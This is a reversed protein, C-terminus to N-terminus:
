QECVPPLLAGHRELLTVLFRAANTPRPPQWERGAKPNWWGQVTKPARWLELHEVPPDACFSDEGAGLLASSWHTFRDHSLRYIPFNGYLPVGWGDLAILAAVSGGMAQWWTAAGIAGAAGASFGILIVERGSSHASGGGREGPLRPCRGTGLRDSIFQLIHAASYAPCSEAPFVLINASQCACPFTNNVESLLEELFRETLKPDHIGPCIVASIPM